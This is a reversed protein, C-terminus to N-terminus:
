KKKLVKKKGPGTTESVAVAGAGFAVVATGAVITTGVIAAIVVEGGAIKRMDAEKLAEKAAVSDLAAYAPIAINVEDATNRVTRMSADTPIDLGVTKKITSKPDAVFDRDLTDDNACESAAFVGIIENVLPISKQQNTEM